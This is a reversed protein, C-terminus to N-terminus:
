LERWEWLGRMRERAEDPAPDRDFVGPATRHIIDIGYHHLLDREQPALPKPFLATLRAVQDPVYRAYDLLQALAERVYGREVRSKAEILERGEPGNLYIDCIGAASPFRIAKTDTLTGCFEIVLASEDRNFLLQQAAREVTTSRTHQREVPMERVAGPPTEAGAEELATRTTILLGNIGAQAQEGSLVLQGPYQHNLKYGLLASLTAYPIEASVFQRLSYVTHWSESGPKPPWMVDAFSSNRFIAGVEGIARVHNKGTFLVVNGTTVETMKGDHSSRAGWFRSRGDPHLETLRRLQDATLKDAYKSETFSVTQDLTDKWHQRSEASGFAPSVLLRAMFASGALGEGTQPGEVRFGLRTLVPVVTAAGGSFDGSGLARGNVHRHAVGVIAKSDYRRGDHLLLYSRAPKFGYNALFVEGGLDDYEALTQLVNDRTVDAIGM